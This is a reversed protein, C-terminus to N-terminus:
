ELRKFGLIMSTIGPMDLTTLPPVVGIGERRDRLAKGSIEEAM